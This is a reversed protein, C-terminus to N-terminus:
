TEAAEPDLGVSALTILLRRYREARDEDAQHASCFEGIAAACDRCDGVYPGPEWLLRGDNVAAAVQAAQEGALFAVGDVVPVYIMHGAPLRVPVMEVSSGDAHGGAHYVPEATGLFVVLVQEGPQPTM